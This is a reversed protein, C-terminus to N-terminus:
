GERWKGRNEVAKQFKTFELGIWKRINGGWRKKQRGQRRRGKVTGQRIIKALGSSHSPWSTLLKRTALSGAPDQLLSGWQYCLRQTVKATDQVECGHSTNKKQLEATLTWAECAYLFISTVLSCMLRIKSSLFTSRDKWVPKLRTLAATTQAIRSLIEAKSGEDSILQAWTSSAQWQRFSRGM